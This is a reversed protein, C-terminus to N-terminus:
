QSYDSQGSPPKRAASRKVEDLAENAARDAEGNAERRIHEVRFLKFAGELRKVRAFFGKLGANKVRYEGKIQKVLLESDSRVLVAEAKLMLADELAFILALYEARNNTDDGIHLGEEILVQGDADRIVWGAAAPGPNGRSAGDVNIIFGRVDQGFLTGQPM